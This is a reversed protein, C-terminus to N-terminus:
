QSVSDNLVALRVAPGDRTVTLSSGFCVCGFVSRVGYVHGGRM